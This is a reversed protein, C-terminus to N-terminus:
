GLQRLDGRKLLDELVQPDFSRTLASDAGVFLYFTKLPSIWSLRVRVFGRPDRLDFWDGKKLDGPMPVFAGNCTPPAVDDRPDEVIAADSATPLGLGASVPALGKDDVRAAEHGFTGERLRRVFDDIDAPYGPGTDGSRRASRRDPAPGSARVAHHLTRTWDAFFHAEDEAAYDIMRLGDRLVAVMTPLLGALRACDGTTSKPTTSWALDVCLRKARALQADSSADGEKRRWVIAALVRSWVDLLFFRTSREVEVDALLQSIQITAKIVLVDHDENEDHPAARRSAELAIEVVRNEFAELLRAHEGADESSARIIAYVVRDFEAQYAKAQHSDDRPSWEAATAALRDLLRRTPHTRSAFFSDDALAMRLVPLQLRALSNRTATPLKENTLLHDFLTAVVDIRKRDSASAHRAIRDRCSRIVDPVILASPKGRAAAPEPLDLPIDIEAQRSALDAAVGHTEALEAVARLLEARGTDAPRSAAARARAGAVDTMLPAVSELVGSRSEPAVGNIVPSAPISRSTIASM